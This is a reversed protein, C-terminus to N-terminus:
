LAKGAQRRKPASAAELGSIFGIDLCGAAPRLLLLWQCDLRLALRVSFSRAGVLPADVGLEVRLVDLKGEIDSFVLCARAVAPLIRARGPRRVEMVAPPLAARLTSRVRYWGVDSAALGLFM